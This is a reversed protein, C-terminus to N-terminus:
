RQTRPNPAILSWRVGDYRARREGYSIHRWNLQDFALEAPGLWRVHAPGVTVTDSRPRNAIFDYSWEVVLSDRTVRWVQLTTPSYGAELDLHAAAARQGDPSAVPVDNSPASHGTRANILLFTGGEAYHVEVVYTNISKLFGRYSYAISRGLDYISDHLVVPAGREPTITLNKGLRTVRGVPRSLLHMEIAQACDYFNHIGQCLRAELADPPLGAIDTDGVTAARSPPRIANHCSTLAVVALSCILAYRVFRPATYVELWTM